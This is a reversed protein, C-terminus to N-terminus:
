TRPFDITQSKLAEAALWGAQATGSAIGELVAEWLARELHTARENNGVQANIEITALYSRVESVSSIMPPKSTQMM